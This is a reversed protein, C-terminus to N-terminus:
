EKPRANLKRLFCPHSFSWSSPGLRPLETKTFGYFHLQRIFTQLSGKFYKKLISEFAMGDFIIFVSGGQDWAGISSLITKTLYVLKQLFPTITPDLSVDMTLNRTTNNNYSTGEV